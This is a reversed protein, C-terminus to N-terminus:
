PMERREEARHMLGGLSFRTIHDALRGIEDAAYSQRPYLRTIVPRCHYYFLCQAVVSSACVRIDDETAAGGLLDTVIGRILNLNPRISEEVLSDLAATPEAMERLMLKGHWAPRGEDLIRLMFSRVFAALREEAAIPAAASEALGLSPPYKELSCRHAYTLVEAYLRGKDGFHYNVAAINAGARKCIDRITAARYGNEAFVEGAAELLRRRTDTTDLIEAPM